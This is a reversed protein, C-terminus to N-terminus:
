EGTQYKNIATIVQQYDNEVFLPLCEEPSKALHIGDWNTLFRYRPKENDMDVVTHLVYSFYSDLKVNNDLLKGPTQLGIISEGNVTSTTATHGVIIITLDERSDVEFKVIADFAALALDMWKQFGTQKADAMVRQTFLHTLDDLIITKVHKANKDVANMIAFADAFTKVKFRNKAETSYHKSAGPFPLDKQNPQIWVTTKPDLNKGARSKGTGPEGIILIARGM